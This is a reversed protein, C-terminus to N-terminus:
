TSNQARSQHLSSLYTVGSRQIKKGECLLGTQRESISQFGNSLFTVKPKSM